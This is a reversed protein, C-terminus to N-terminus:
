RLVKSMGLLTDFVGVTIHNKKTKSSLRCQRMEGM